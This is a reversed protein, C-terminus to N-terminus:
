STKALIGGHGDEGENRGEESGGETLNDSLGTPRKQARKVEEFQRRQEAEM